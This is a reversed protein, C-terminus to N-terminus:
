FLHDKEPSERGHEDAYLYAGLVLGLQHADIVHPTSFRTNAATDDILVQIQLWPFRFVTVEYPTRNWRWAIGDSADYSFGHAAMTERTVHQFYRREFREQDGPKADALQAIDMQDNLSPGGISKLFSQFQECLTQHRVM